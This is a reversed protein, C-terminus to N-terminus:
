PKQAREQAREYHAILGPRRNVLIVHFQILVYFSLSSLQNIVTRQYNFRLTQELLKDPNMRADTVPRTHTRPLCRPPATASSAIKIPGANAFLVNGCKKTIMKLTAKKGFSARFNRKQTKHKAPANSDNEFRQKQNALKKAIEFAKLVPRYGYRLIARSLCQNNCRNNIEGPCSVFSGTAPNVPFFGKDIVKDLAQTYEPDKIFAIGSDCLVQVSNDIAALGIDLDQGVCTGTSSQSLHAVAQQAGTLLHESM